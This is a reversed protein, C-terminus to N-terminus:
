SQKIQLVKKQKSVYSRQAIRMNAIRQEIVAKEIMDIGPARLVNRLRTQHAICAIHVADKPFGQFRYKNSHPHSKEVAIYSPDDIVELCLFADDFSQLASSMSDHVNRDGEMCFALEQQLFAQEVLAIAKPDVAEGASKFVAFAISLGKEYHARGEQEQGKTAWGLRGRAIAEVAKIINNVLGTLDM